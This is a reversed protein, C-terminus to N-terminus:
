MMGPQAAAVSPDFSTEGNAQPGQTNATAQRMSKDIKQQLGRTTQALLKGDARGRSQSQAYDQVLKSYQALLNEDRAGLQAVPTTAYTVYGEGDIGVAALVRLVNQKKTEDKMSPLKTALTDVGALFAAISNLHMLKLPEGEEAAIAINALVETVNEALLAPNLQKEQGFNNFNERIQEIEKATSSRLQEIAKHLNFNM